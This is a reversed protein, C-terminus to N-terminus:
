NSIDVARQGLDTAGAVQRPLQWRKMRGCDFRCRRRIRESSRLAAFHHCYLWDEMLHQQRSLWSHTCVAIRQQLHASRLM